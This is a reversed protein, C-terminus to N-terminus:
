KNALHNKTQPTASEMYVGNPVEKIDDKQGYIGCFKEIFQYHPCLEDYSIPWNSGFGDKPPIFTM